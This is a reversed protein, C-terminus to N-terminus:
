TETDTFMNTEETHYTCHSKRRHMSPNDREFHSRWVPVVVWVWPKPCGLWVKAINLPCIHVSQPRIQERSSPQHIEVASCCSAFRASVFQRLYWCATRTPVPFTLWILISTQTKNLAKQASVASRSQGCVTSIDPFSTQNFLILCFKIWWVFM